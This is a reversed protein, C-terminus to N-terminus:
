AKPRPTGFGVNVTSVEGSIHSKILMDFSASITRIGGGLDVDIDQLTFTVPADAPLNDGSRIVASRCDAALAGTAATPDSSVLFPPDTLDIDGPSGDPKRFDFGVDVEDLDSLEYAM